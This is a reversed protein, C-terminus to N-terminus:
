LKSVVKDRVSFGRGNDAEYRAELAFADKELPISAYSFGNEEWGSIYKEMFGRLGLVEYQVVHVLEHFLLPMWGSQNKFYRKSILITDMYTIGTASKLDLPKVIGMGDLDPYFPPNEIVSVMKVRVKDLTEQGFFKKLESKEKTELKRGKPRYRSRQSQAWIMAKDTLFGMLDVPVPHESM